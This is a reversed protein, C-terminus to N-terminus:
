EKKTAIKGDNHKLAALINVPPFRIVPLGAQISTTSVIDRIYPFMIAPANIDAFHELNLNRKGQIYSFIGVMSCHLNFVSNKDSVDCSLECNITQGDPSLSHTFVFETDIDYSAIEQKRSFNLEKLLINDFWIGPQQTNNMM